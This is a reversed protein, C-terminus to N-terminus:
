SFKMGAAFCRTAERFFPNQRRHDFERILELGLGSRQQGYGRDGQSFNM